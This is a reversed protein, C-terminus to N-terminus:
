TPSIVVIIKAYIVDRIVSGNVSWQMGNALYEVSHKQWREFIGTCLKQEKDVAYFQSTHPNIQNLVEWLIYILFFVTYKLPNSQNLKPQM